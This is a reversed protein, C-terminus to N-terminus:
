VSKSCGSADCDLVTKGRPVNVMAIGDHSEIILKQPHTHGFIVNKVNYKEAINLCIKIHKEKLKKAGVFKAVANKTAILKLKFKGVGPKRNHWKKVNKESYLERHFHVLATSQDNTILVEINNHEYGVVVEHNGNLVNTGTNKCELLFDVYQKTYESVKERPINKFEHNDGIYFLDPGFEPDIGIPTPGKWHCDSFIVIRM